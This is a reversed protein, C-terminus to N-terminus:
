NNQIGDPHQHDTKGTPYQSPDADKAPRIEEPKRGHENKVLLLNHARM